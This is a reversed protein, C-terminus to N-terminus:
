LRLKLGLRFHTHTHGSGCSVNSSAPLAWWPCVSWSIAFLQLNRECFTKNYLDWISFALLRPKANDRCLCVMPIWSPSKFFCFFCLFCLRDPSTNVIIRKKKTVQSHAWFDPTNFYVLSSLSVM